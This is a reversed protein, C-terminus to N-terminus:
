RMERDYLPSTNLPWLVRTVKGIIDERPIAGFHRSDLSNSRNDGLMFYSGEPVHYPESIGCTTGPFPQERLAAHARHRHPLAELERYQGDIHVLGDRVQVTEGGTAVIRKVIPLPGAVSPHNPPAFLVIDGTVPEQWRYALKNVVIRAGKQVTPAMDSGATIGIDVVHSRLAWGIPIGALWVAGIFAVAPLILSPESKRHKPTARYACFLALLHWATVPVMGWPQKLLWARLVVSSFIFGIGVLWKRLYLHGLGPVIVSLFVALWPDKTQTRLSEFDGANQKRTTRFAATSAGILLGFGCLCVLLFVAMPIRPSILTALTGVVLAIRLLVLAIGAIWLRCYLHGAGPLVWSLSAALWPERNRVAQGTTAVAITNM